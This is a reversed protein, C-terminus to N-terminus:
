RGMRTGVPPPKMTTLTRATATTDAVAARAGIVTAVVRPCGLQGDICGQGVSHFSSAGSMQHSRAFWLRARARAVVRPDRSVCWRACDAHARGNPLATRDGRPKNQDAQKFKYRKKGGQSQNGFSTAFRIESRRHSTAFRIVFRSDGTHRPGGHRPRQLQM